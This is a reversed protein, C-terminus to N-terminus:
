AGHYTQKRRGGEFAERIRGTKASTSVEAVGLDWWLEAGVTKRRKDATAVVVTPGTADRARELAADLDDPTEARIATAGLGEAVRALDLPAYDQGFGGDAGRVVFENGYNEVGSTAEQLERICQFGANDIIVVTIKLGEQVATALDSPAMLFTGDGIVVYIEGADPRALRIGIGAPLEHGMCSYGFELLVEAHDGARAGTDFGKMIEGPPTGAAAVVVDGKRSARNVHGIIEGQGLNEGQRHGIDAAYDARWRGIIELAEAAYADGARWRRAALAESLAALGLKADAVVPAAGLKIADNAHVNLGVVRAKADFLSRSATAFDTLRTGIAIVLDATEAIAQAARTGTLGGGGLLLRAGTGVGKGSFTEAIPVNFRESFAALDAEAGAYRVGGGAIVLPRAARAILDAADAVEGPDPAHRVIRWVRPEFFREPYDHAEGQVDQPLALTVAGGAAPNTLARMALPLATLLHEPRVIRDFFVSLPRFADNVSVDNSIPHELQQLVVGSRRHAYTDAPLLLVPVRNVTATAAGTLMNTSGPGISGTAALTARCRKAKAFGIAAHVGSQENKCPYFPLADPAAALAEGLGPVNGHGFIGFVGQVLRERGGDIESSQAALYHVLAQAVTLRVTSSGTSRHGRASGRDTMADGAM